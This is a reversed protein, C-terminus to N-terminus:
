IKVLRRAVIEDQFRIRLIYVGKPLGHGVDYRYQGAMKYEAPQIKGAEVLSIDYLIIETIGPGSLDVQIETQEIFPNPRIIVVPSHDKGPTGRVGTLLDDNVFVPIRHVKYDTTLDLTDSIYGPIQDTPFDIKVKFVLSDEPQLIVPLSIPWPDIYWAAPGNFYGEPEIDTITVEYSSNNKWSIEKGDMCEEITEFVLSDASPTLNKHLQFSAIRTQWTNWGTYPLYEQTYWFTLDDSPDVGMMSYDGWRVNTAQNGEGTVVEAEAFTMTGPTDYYNRGSLRISPYTSTGSVSYGLGINGDKDMAVSAMWRSDADPAFTGQQFIEWDSDHKRLEYWRVAAHDNGVDITHNCLLSQYDGFNRYQLRYMMFQGLGHLKTGTNPQTVWGVGNDWNADFPETELKAVEEFVCNATDDWDVICQWLWIHDFDYGWADDRITVLYHPTGEPPPPGDIDAPLFSAPDTLFFQTPADALFHLIAPDPNGNIMDDRNFVLLGAGELYSFSTSIFYENITLYYGDSWVGVKPYDPMGTFHLAYCYWSGLPDPGTSVAIMEWYEVYLDYVMATAIWRDAIPDYIVVPDTWNKDHWPGPLSAWLTKNDAPGYLLDGSKDWIAFSSKVIQIYHNIGVDGETDPNPLMNVNGVGEFNHIIEVPDNSLEDLIHNRVIPSANYPAVPLGKQMHNFEEAITRQPEPSIPVVDRLAPSESFAAIDNFYKGKYVNKQSFSFPIILAIVLCSILSRM